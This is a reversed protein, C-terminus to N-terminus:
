LMKKKHFDENTYFYFQTSLAYTQIGVFQESGHHM